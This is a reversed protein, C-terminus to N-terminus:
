GRWLIYGLGDVEYPLSTVGAAKLANRLASMRQDVMEPLLLLSAALRERSMIQGARRMLVALLEREEVPLAILKGRWSTVGTRTDMMLGGFRLHREQHRSADVSRAPMAHNEVIVDQAELEGFGPTHGM